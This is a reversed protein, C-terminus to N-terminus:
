GGGRVPQIARLSYKLKWAAPTQAISRAEILEEEGAMLGDDDFLGTPSLRTSSPASFRISRRKAPEADDQNAPQQVPRRM